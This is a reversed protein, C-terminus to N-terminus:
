KEQSSLITEIPLVVIGEPPAALHLYYKLTERSAHGLFEILKAEVMERPFKQDLMSQALHTAFAHRLSHPTTYEPLGLARRVELFAKQVTFDMVHHRQTRKSRPDVSLEPAPFLWYWDNSTHLTRYKKELARPLHVGYGAIHDARWFNAARQHQLRIDAKLVEPMPIVREKDGKAQHIILKGNPFDVDKLRLRLAENVRMGTGYLIKSILDHPARLASILSRVQEPSLIPPIRLKPRARLANVGQVDM